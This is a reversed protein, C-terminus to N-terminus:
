INKLIYEELSEESFFDNDVQHVKGGTLILLEDSIKQAIPLIHTSIIVINGQNAYEILQQRMHRINIPDLSVLPEDLLLVKPEILFAMALSLQHKMGHSYSIIIDNYFDGMGKERIFQELQSDDMHIKHIEKIFKLHEKATLYELFIPTESVYYTDQFRNPIDIFKINGANYPIHGSVIKMLTTKGVGNRGLLCYIKGGKLSFAVGDLVVSNEYKKIVNKIKLEM